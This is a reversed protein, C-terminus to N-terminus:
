KNWYISVWPGIGTGPIRCFQTVDYGNRKLKILVRKRISRIEIGTQRREAAHKIKREIRNFQMTDFFSWESLPDFESEEAVKRAKEASYM